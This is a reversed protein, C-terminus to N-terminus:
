QGTSTKREKDKILSQLTTISKSDASSEVAKSAIGEVQQYAKDLQQSLKAIQVAQEKINQELSQVRTTLVNREGEFQKTLLEERNKAELGVRDATEQIAKEIEAAKEKPLAEVRTRLEELEGERGAVAAQRETLDKETEEKKQRLDRELQAMEDEFRDRALRQEREFNYEYEEKERKRKSGEEDKRATIEEELRRKESALQDRLAKIQHELEERREAMEGELQSKKEQHAEILAALTAGSREIEYIEKLDEERSAIAKQIQDHKAVEEELKESIETLTRSIESKLTATQHVVEETSLSAAIALSKEKEKEEIKKEPRLETQQKEQLRKLVEDYAVLMEKKTNSMTVDPTTAEPDSM